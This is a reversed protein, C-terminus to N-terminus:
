KKDKLWDKAEEITEFYEINFPIDQPKANRAKSVTQDVSSRAFQSGPMVVAEWKLGAQMVKPLWVKAIWDQDDQNLIRMARADTFFLSCKKEEIVELIKLLIIQLAEGYAFGKWRLTVAKLSEDWDVVAQPTDYLAM